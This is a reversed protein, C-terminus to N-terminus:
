ISESRSWRLCRLGRRRLVCPLAATSGLLRTPNSRCNPCRRDASSTRSQQRDGHTPLVTTTGSGLDAEGPM